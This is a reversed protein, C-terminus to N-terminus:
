RRTTQPRPRVREGRTRPVHISGRESAQRRRATEAAKQRVPGKLPDVPAVVLEVVTALGNAVYQVAQAGRPNAVVLYLLSLGIMLGALQLATQATSRGAGPIGTQEFARGAPGRGRRGRRSRRGAPRRSSSRGAPDSGRSRRPEKPRASQRDTDTRKREGADAGRSYSPGWSEGKPGQATTEDRLDVGPFARELEELAREAEAEWDAPLDDSLALEVELEQHLRAAQRATKVSKARSLPDRVRAM